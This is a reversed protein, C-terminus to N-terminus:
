PRPEFSVKWADSWSQFVAAAWLPLALDHRGREFDTWARDLAGRQWLPLLRSNTPSLTDRAWDRLESTLWKAIPVTFGMKPRDLLAKPVYREAITRLPQKTIGDQIKLHSPVRWSFEVVHHDLIPVRAELSEWMSARDVKTLLDDPLYGMQDMFMM